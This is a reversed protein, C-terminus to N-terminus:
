AGLDRAPAKFVAECAARPAAGAPLKACAGDLRGQLRRLVAAHRGGQNWAQLKTGVRQMSRASRAEFGDAQAAAADILTRALAEIRAADQPALEVLTELYTAGWQLRTAPGESKEYAQAAWDIAAATDGRKRANDSLDSMLYYPSHSKALNTKLLADSAEGLGAQELAYASYTIVAQREYGDTIERDFRASQERLQTLLAPPVAPKAGDPADIGALRIRGLLAGVRDARSLTSDEQLRTLAGDFAAVLAAREPTGNASLARVLRASRHAILDTYARARAADALMALVPGRRQAADAAPGAKPDAAALAKLWLRMALEPQDAPCAAALERLVGAPGEPGALRQQDTDWSYFALLRWEGATLGAGGARAERLVEKVPRRAALGLTLLEEAQQPEVEGPLRTLERGQPDFLVMTPYGRVAFRSGLKQAGPKDGDVYVPVVGRSREIFDQRNFLTAQLQNCPPCWKAGWYLLVPKGESRARAFAADVQADASAYTWAIGTGAPAAAVVGGFALLVSLGAALGARRFM